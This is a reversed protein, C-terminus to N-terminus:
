RDRRTFLVFKEETKLMQAFLSFKEETKSKMGYACQVM